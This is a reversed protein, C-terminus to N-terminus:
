DKLSGNRIKAAGGISQRTWPFCTEYHKTVVSIFNNYCDNIDENNCLINDWNTEILCNRFKQKSSTTFLRILRRDKLNIRNFVNILLAFNPLHDSLDSFINGSSLKFNNKSNRGQYYYIHDIVTASSATTQTPLLIAPLYNNM